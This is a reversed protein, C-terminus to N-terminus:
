IDCSLNRKVYGKQLVANRSPADSYAGEDVADKATAVTRGASITSQWM